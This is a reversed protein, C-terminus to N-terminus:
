DILLSPPESPFLAFHTTIPVLSPIWFRVLSHSEILDNLPQRFTLHINICLYANPPAYSLTFTPVSHTSQFKNIMGVMSGAPQGILTITVLFKIQYHPMPILIIDKNSNEYLVRRCHGICVSQQYSAFSKMPVFVVIMFEAM